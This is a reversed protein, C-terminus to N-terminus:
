SRAKWRKEREDQRHRIEAAVLLGAQFIPALANRRDDEDAPWHDLLIQFAADPGVNQAMASLELLEDGFRREVSFWAAQRSNLKAVM